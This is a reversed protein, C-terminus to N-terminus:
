GPWSRSPAHLGFVAPNGINLKMVQHGQAELRHAAELIPGRVHHLKSFRTVQCMHVLSENSGSNYLNLANTRQANHKNNTM